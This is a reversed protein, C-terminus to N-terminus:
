CRVQCQASIAGDEQHEEHARDQGYQKKEDVAILLLSSIPCLKFPVRVGIHCRYLLADFPIQFHELRDATQEGGRWYDLALVKSRENLTGERTM